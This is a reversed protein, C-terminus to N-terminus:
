VEIEKEEQPGAYSGRVGVALACSRLALAPFFSSV